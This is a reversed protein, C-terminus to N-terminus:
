SGWSTDNPTATAGTVVAGRSTAADAAVPLLLAATRAPTAVAAARATRLMTM